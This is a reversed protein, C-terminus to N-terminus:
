SWTGVEHIMGEGLHVMMTRQMMEDDRGGFRFKMEWMQMQIVLIMMMIM